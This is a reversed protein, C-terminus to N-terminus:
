NRIKGLFPDFNGSWRRHWSNNLFFVSLCGVPIARARAGSCYTVSVLVLARSCYTVSARARARAGSCYIVSVLVELPSWYEYLLPVHIYQLVNVNQHASTCTYVEEEEQLSRIHVPNIPTAKSPTTEVTPPIGISIAETSLGSTPTTENAIVDTPTTENAVVHTPTTETAIVDTPTTLQFM